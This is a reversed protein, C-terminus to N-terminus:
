DDNNDERGLHGDSPLYKKPNCTCSFFVLGFIKAGVAYLIQEPRVSYLYSADKLIGYEAIIGICMLGFAIYYVVRAPTIGYFRRVLSLIPAWFLPLFINVVIRLEINAKAISIVFYFVLGLAIILGFIAALKMTHIGISRGFRKLSVAGCSIHNLSSSVGTKTATRIKTVLLPYGCHPCTLAKDSLEKGCESCKTIM